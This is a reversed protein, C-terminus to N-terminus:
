KKEPVASDQNVQSDQWRLYEFVKLADEKSVNQNAMQTMFQAFLEKATPDLLTMKEPQMIMSVIWEPKRRTTVGKLAPGVYREAIKHCTMCKAEFIKLGQDALSKDLPGVTVEPM